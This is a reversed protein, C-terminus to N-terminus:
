KWKGENDRHMEFADSPSASRAPPRRRGIRYAVRRDGTTNAFWSVVSVILSAGLASWFSDVQVGAVFRSAFEFLLANIILVFGGLTVLTLPLTLLILIPKVLINLISLVAAAALASGFDRVTVGSIVSPIMLITLSVVLWRFLFFWMGRFSAPSSSSQGRFKM